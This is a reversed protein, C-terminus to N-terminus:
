QLQECRNPEAISLLLPVGHDEDSGEQRMLGQLRQPVFIQERFQLKM